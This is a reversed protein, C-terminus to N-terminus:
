AAQGVWVPEAGDALEVKLSTLCYKIATSLSRDETAAVATAALTKSFGMCRLALYRYYDKIAPQAQLAMADLSTAPYTPAGVAAPPGEEPALGGPTSRSVTGNPSMRRFFARASASLSAPLVLEAPKAEEEEENAEENAEEEREDDDAAAEATVEPSTVGGEPAADSSAVGALASRAVRAYAAVEADLGADADVDAAAAEKEAADSVEDDGLSLEEAAAVWSALRDLHESEDASDAEAPRQSLWSAIEADSADVLSSPHVASPSSSSPVKSAGGVKAFVSVAPSGSGDGGDSERVPTTRTAPLYEMKPLAAAAALFAEAAAADEPSHPNAATARAAPSSAASSDGASASAAAGAAPASIPAPPTTVPAVSESFSGLTAFAGQEEATSLMQAQLKSRWAAERYQDVTLMDQLHRDVADATLNLASAILSAAVTGPAGASAGASSVASAAARLKIETANLANAKATRAAVVTSNGLSLLPKALARAATANRLKAREAAAAARAASWTANRLPAKLADRADLVTEFAEVQAPTLRLSNYLRSRWETKNYIWAPPQPVTVPQASTSTTSAAAVLFLLLAVAAAAAADFRAM